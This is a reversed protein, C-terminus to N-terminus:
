RAQRQKPRETVSADPAAMLRLALAHVMAKTESKWEDTQRTDKDIASELRILFAADDRYSARM